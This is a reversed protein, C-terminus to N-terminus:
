IQSLLVEAILTDPYRILQTTFSKAEDWSMTLSAVFLHDPGSTHGTIFSLPLQTRGQPPWAFHSRMVKIEVEQVTWKWRRVILSDVMPYACRPPVQPWCGHAGSRRVLHAQKIVGTQEDTILMAPILEPLDALDQSLLDNCTPLHPWTRCLATYYVRQAEEASTCLAQEKHDGDDEIVIKRNILTIFFYRGRENTLKAMPFPYQGLYPYQVGIATLRYMTM